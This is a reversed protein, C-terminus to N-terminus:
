REYFTYEEQIEEIPVDRNLLLSTTEYHIDNVRALDKARYKAEKESDTLVDYVSRVVFDNVNSGNRFQTWIPIFSVKTIEAPNDDIKEVSINLIISANRPPTTQSSIFNGMSYMVYGKRTTGDPETIERVEMPELVHPHSAVIIDAGCQFMLDVWKKQEETPETVYETGMHPMVVIFDPNLSKAKTIDNKVASENLLNVNYENKVPIGNTGYTYSLFVFKIGNIETIEVKNREEQSRNTGVHKIGLSDLVDLTRCLADTGQDMCHNNATTFFDFGANKAAVAFSDPTNFCPFDQAGIEDGGLVTELNGLIYDAKDFYKKVAEFNHDFEYTGTASDYSEEYQYSHVMLDGTFSLLAQRVIPEKPEEITEQQYQSSTEEKQNSNAGEQESDISSLASANKNNGGCGLLCFSFIITILLFLIKYLGISPKKHKM